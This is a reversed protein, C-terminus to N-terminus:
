KQEAYEEVSDNIVEIKVEAENLMERSERAAHYRKECVIKKIGSSILLKTCDLCPEMKCYLTAGEINIGYKAAQAIANAEAHVTRICHQTITGDEHITKKFWHGIEDCHALKPPAGAYGTSMVRKDKVLICGARGRDCTGRKGIVGALEIFYEDWSPRTFSSIEEIKPLAEDIKRYFSDFDLDNLITLKSMKICNSIKQGSNSESIMEKEESEVFNEFTLNEKDEKRANERAVLRRFREEIPADVNILVFNKSSNLKKVELPNRISTIVYRKNETVKEIAKEALIGNGLEERLKNGFTRLNERTLEINKKRAEERIIDSLSIHEFGKKVLYNALTDKGACFTGTVGIKLM